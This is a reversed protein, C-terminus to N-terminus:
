RRLRSRIIATKPLPHACLSDHTPACLVIKKLQAHKSCVVGNFIVKWGGPLHDSRAFTCPLLAFHAIMVTQHALCQHSLIVTILLSQSYQLDVYCGRMKEQFAM